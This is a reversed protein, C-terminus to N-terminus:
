QNREPSHKRCVNIFMNWETAWERVVDGNKGDERPYCFGCRETAPLKEKHRRYGSCACAYGAYDCKGDHHQSRAHGCQCLTSM